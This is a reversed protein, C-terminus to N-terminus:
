DSDTQPSKELRASQSVSFIFKERRSSLVSLSPSPALTHSLSAAFIQAHVLFRYCCSFHSFFFLLLFLLPTISLAHTHTDAFPNLKISFGPPFHWLPFIQSYCRLQKSYTHPFILFFYFLFIERQTHTHTFIKYVCIGQHAHTNNEGRIPIKTTRRFRCSAAFNRGRLLLFNTQRRRRRRRERRPSYICIQTHRTSESQRRISRL